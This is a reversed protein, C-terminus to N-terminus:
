ADAGPWLPRQWADLYERRRDPREPLRLPIDRTDVLLGGLGGTVEFAVRRARAGVYLDDPADLQVTAALGPPLDVVQVAGPALTLTTTAGEATVRLEGKHGPRLGPALIASGLPVLLDELLDALMRRRDRESDLVGLPGLVRAHDYALAVAGPRRLTDVLALAVAPAPASAFAGGGAVLLDPATLPVPDPIGADTAAGASGDRAVEQWTAELRELAARAAALRLRAGDGTADRWPAVRLNRLRDAVSFADDSLPSWLAIRDLMAQDDLAEAPLLAADARVVRRMVGDPTAMVRAGADLGIEVGEVRLDLLAALSTISRLFGDRGDAPRPVLEDAAVSADGLGHARRVGGPALQPRGGAAPGAVLVPVDDRLGTAAGVFALIDLLASRDSGSLGEPAAVAVLQLDPDRLAMAAQLMTARDSTLRAVVRWGDMLLVRSLAAVSRETPGAVVARRPPMTRSEVRTWGRWGDPDSVLDPEAASVEHVLQALLAEPETDAAAARATLLRWRGGVLAVLAVALTAAGRDV